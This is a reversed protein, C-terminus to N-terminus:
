SEDQASINANSTFQVSDLASPDFGAKLEVFFSFPPKAARQPGSGIEFPGQCGTYAVPLCHQHAGDSRIESRDVGPNSGEDM